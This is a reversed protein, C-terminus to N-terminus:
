AEKVVPHRPLVACIEAGGLPSAGRRFSGGLMMVREEMGLLGLHRGQPDAPGFGCGDDQVCLEIKAEEGLLSIEVRGAGAHRAVNTLAEQTVRFLATACAPDIAGELGQAVVTCPVGSRQQFDTALWELAPLLGLRDLVSPRLESAIRRISEISAEIQRSTEECWQALEDAWSGPCRAHARTRLYALSLKFSTLEQGLQDHLERAIRAGEEERAAQVRHSLARLQAQAELAERQRDALAEAMANFSLSLDRIEGRTTPLHARVGLDGSGLKRTAIALLRLDRLVSIDAAVLSSLVTLLMLIALSALTRQFARNAERLVMNEPLGVAVFVDNVEPMPSAVFLRHVGDRGVTAVLGRSRGRMANWDPLPEGLAIGKERSESTKAMVRGDRDTIYLSTGPPLQAQPGLNELWALDLAAFLVAAPHGRGLGRALILVPRHVIKGIRYRGVAVGLGALAEQVAPEDRMDVTNEPPVVSFLLRGERDLLGLNALAPNAQLLAPLLKQVAEGDDPDLQKLLRQAGIVQHSHERTAISAVLRAESEAHKLAEARERAALVLVILFAPLTALLALLPLHFRLTRLSTPLWPM